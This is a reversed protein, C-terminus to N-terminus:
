RRKGSGQRPGKIRNSPSSSKEGPPLGRRRTGVVQGVKARRPAEDCFARRINRALLFGKHLTRNQDSKLTKIALLRGEVELVLGIPVEMDPEVDLKYSRTKEGENVSLKLPVTDFVKAFLTTIDRALAKPKRQQGALEIATVIMRHDDLEFEDGEEISEDSPTPISVNWSQTDQSVVTNIDIIPARKPPNISRVSSCETCQITLSQPREHLIAHEEEGCEPCPDFLDVDM